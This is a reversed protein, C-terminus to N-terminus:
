LKNTYSSLGIVKRIIPNRGRAKERQFIRHEEYFKGGSSTIEIGDTSYHIISGFM